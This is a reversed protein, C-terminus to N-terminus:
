TNLRSMESLHVAPPWLETLSGMTVQKTKLPQCNACSEEEGVM